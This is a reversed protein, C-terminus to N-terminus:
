WGSDGYGSRAASGAPHDMEVGEMSLEFLLFANYLQQGKAVCEMSAEFLLTPTRAAVLFPRSFLCATKKLEVLIEWLLIYNSVPRPGSHTRGFM